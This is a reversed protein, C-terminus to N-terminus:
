IDLTEGQSFIGPIERIKGIYLGDDIWYDLRLNHIM